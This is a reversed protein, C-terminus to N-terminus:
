NVIIDGAAVANNIADDESVYNDSYSADINVTVSGNFNVVTTGIDIAEGIGGTCQVNITGGNVNLTTGSQAYIGIGYGAESIAVNIVGGNFNVTSNSKGTANIGTASNKGYANIVGGNMTFVANDRLIVGKSDTWTGPDGPNYTNIVTGDEMTLSANESVYVAASFMTDETFSSNITGNQITANVGAAVTLGNQLAVNLENGGLDLVADSSITVIEDAITIDETLEVKGGEALAQKLQDVTGAKTVNFVTDSSDPQGPHDTGAGAQGGFAAFAEAATKFGEAQIADAYVLISTNAKLGELDENDLSHKMQFKWVPSYKALEGAELVETCTYIYELSTWSDDAKIASYDTKGTEANYGASYDKTTGDAYHAVIGKAFHGEELRTTNETFYFSNFQDRTVIMRIRYYADNRGTNDVYIAKNFERGPVVNKGAEALYKSYYTEADMRIDDATKDTDVNTYYQSELLQIDVNGVTFVNTAEETDTFYALTGGVATLLLAVVLVLALIKKKNM